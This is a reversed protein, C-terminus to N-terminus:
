STIDVGFFHLVLAVVLYVFALVCFVMAAALYWSFWDHRDFYRM